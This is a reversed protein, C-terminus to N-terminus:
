GGSVRGSKKKGAKEFLDALKQIEVLKPNM